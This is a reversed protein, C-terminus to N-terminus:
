MLSSVSKPMMTATEAQGIMEISCASPVSNFYVVRELRRPAGGIASSELPDKADAANVMPHTDRRMASQLLAAQPM